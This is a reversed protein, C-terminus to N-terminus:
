VFKYKNEYESYKIILNSGTEDLIMMKEFVLDINASMNEESGKIIIYGARATANQIKESKDGKKVIYFVKKVFELKMIEEEPTIYTIIGPKIFFLQVSLNKNNENFDYDTVQQINTSSKLAIDM